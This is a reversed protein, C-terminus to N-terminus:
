LKAAVDRRLWWGRVVVVGGACRVQLRAMVARVRDPREPHMSPSAGGEDHLEMREDWSIVTLADGQPSPPRWPLYTHM